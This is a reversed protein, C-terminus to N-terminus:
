EAVCFLSTSIYVTVQTLKWFILSLSFLWDWIIVYWICQCLMKFHCFNKFPSCIPPQWDNPVSHTTAPPPETYKYFCLLPFGITTSHETEMTITSVHVYVHSLIRYFWIHVCILVLLTPSIQILATPHWKWHGLQWITSTKCVLIM